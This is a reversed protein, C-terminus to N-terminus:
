KMLLMKRNALIRGDSKLLAFYVGSSVPNNNNDTGNWTLSHETTSRGEDLEPHCVFSNIKQGKINIIEIETNETFETNLSFSITTNPNFPNPYNSLKFGTSSNVEDDDSNTAVALEYSFELSTDNANALVIIHDTYGDALDPIAFIGSETAAFSEVISEMGSGVSILAFSAPQNVTYDFNLETEHTFKVYKTAWPNVTGTVDAPYANHYYSQQFNPLNLNEYNYLGSYIEPEDLYNAITWNNFIAEFPISYSHVILQNRIGQIGNAPESVIDAILGESTFKEDLYTFFLMVKVYDSWQQDWFNLSNNPNSNFSSIPDPMGFHVMALEAMGEDLWTEENIDAGWHILHQLEHSLVSIRVPETPDLPSCTMYIMECENSHGAPNMTGAEAETVQNYSSFYGDFSTGNFSGLASYYVILKPDGDLEDPVPGFLNEDMEVAGFDDGAMTENELYNFVTNVDEQNMNVNWQDDSVFIYCHEGVARCTADAQQWSPPMVSLDWRWFTKVDGVGYDREGRQAKIQKHLDQNMVRQSESKLHEQFESFSSYEQAYVITVLLSLFLVIFLLKSKM